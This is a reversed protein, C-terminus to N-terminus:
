DLIRYMYHHNPKFGNKEYLSRGIETAHLSVLNIGIKKSEDLLKELLASGIGKRRWEPKTYMNLVYSEKGPLNWLQPIKLQIELGSTAIINQKADVAVWSIFSGDKLHRLFYKELHECYNDLEEESAKMNVEKVFEIRCEILKPIDEITAKKITYKM